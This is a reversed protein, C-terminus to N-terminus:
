LVVARALLLGRHLAAAMFVVPLDSVVEVAEMSAAAGMFVAVVVEATSAAVAAEMSDVVVATAAVSPM